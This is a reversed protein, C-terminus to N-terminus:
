CLSSNTMERHLYILFINNRLTIKKSKERFGYTNRCIDPFQCRIFVPFFVASIQPPAHLPSSLLHGKYTSILNATSCIFHSFKYLPWCTDSFPVSITVCERQIVTILVERTSQSPGLNSTSECIPMVPSSVLFSSPIQITDRSEVSLVLPFTRPPRRISHLVLKGSEGISEM